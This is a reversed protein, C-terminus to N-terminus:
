PIKLSSCFKLSWYVQKKIIKATISKEYNTFHCSTKRWPTLLALPMNSSPNSTRPIASIRLKVTPIKKTVTWTHKMSRFSQHTSDSSLENALVADRGRMKKSERVWERVSVGATQEKTATFPLTIIKTPNQPFLHRGRLTTLTISCSCYSLLHREQSGPLHGAALYWAGQMALSGLGTCPACNGARCPGQLHKHQVKCTNMHRLPLFQFYALYKAQGNDEGVAHWPLHEESHHYIIVAGEETVNVLLSYHMWESATTSIRRRMEGAREQVSFSLFSM